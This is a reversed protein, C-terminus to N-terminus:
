FGMRGDNTRRYEEKLEEDITDTFYDTFFRLNEKADVDIITLAMCIQGPFDDAEIHTQIDVMEEFCDVVISGWEVTCM